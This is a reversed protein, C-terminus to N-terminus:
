RENGVTRECVNLGSPRQRCNLGCEYSGRDDVEARVRDLCENLSPFEGVVEHRLLDTRDPYVLGLWNEDQQLFFRYALLCGLVLVVAYGVVAGTRRTPAVQPAPPSADRASQPGRRERVQENDGVDDDDSVVAKPEPLASGPVEREKTASRERLRAGVSTPEETKQSARVAEVAGVGSAALFYAIWLEANRTEDAHGAIFYAVLGCAVWAFLAATVSAHVPPIRRGLVIRAPLYVLFTPIM